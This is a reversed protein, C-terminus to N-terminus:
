LTGNSGSCTKRINKEIDTKSFLFISIYKAQCYIVLNGFVKQYQTYIHSLLFVVPLVVPKRGNIILQSVNLSTDRVTTSM